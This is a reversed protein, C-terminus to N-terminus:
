PVAQTQSGFCSDIVPPAIQPQTRQTRTRNSVVDVEEKYTSSQAEDGNGLLIEDGNGKEFDKKTRDNRITL